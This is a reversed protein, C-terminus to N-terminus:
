PRAYGTLGFAVSAKGFGCRFQRLQRASPSVETATRSRKTEPGDGSSGEVTDIQQLAFFAQERVEQDEDNLLQALAAHIKGENPGLSRRLGLFRAATARTKSDHNNLLEFLVRTAAPDDREVLVRPFDLTKHPKLLDM